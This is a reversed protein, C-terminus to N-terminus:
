KRPGQPDYPPLFREELGRLNERLLALEATLVRRAAGDPMTRVHQNLAGVIYTVGRKPVFQPASM